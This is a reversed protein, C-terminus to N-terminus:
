GLKLDDYVWNVNSFQPIRSSLVQVFFVPFIVQYFLMSMLFSQRVKVYQALFAM